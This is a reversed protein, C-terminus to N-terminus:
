GIRQLITGALIVADVEIQRAVRVARDITAARDSYFRRFVGLTDPQNHRAPNVLAYVSDRVMSRAKRGTKKTQAELADAAWTTSTRIRPVLHDLDPNSHTPPGPPRPGSRPPALSYTLTQDDSLDSESPEFDSIRAVLHDFDSIRAVLHDLDPDAPGPPRPGPELPDAAWTTSTRTRTPRRGAYNRARDAPRPGKSVYRSGHPGSTLYHAPPSHM